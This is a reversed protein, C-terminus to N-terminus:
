VLLRAGTSFRRGRAGMTRAAEVEVEGHALMTTPDGFKGRAVASAIFLTIVVERFLM